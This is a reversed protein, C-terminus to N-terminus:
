KKGPPANFADDDDMTHMLSPITGERLERLLLALRTRLAPVCSAPSGESALADLICEVEEESLVIPARAPMQTNQGFVAVSARWIRISDDVLSRSEKWPQIRHSM